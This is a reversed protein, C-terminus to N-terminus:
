CAAAAASRQFVREARKEWDANDCHVCLVVGGNQIYEEHQRVESKPVGPGSVWNLIGSSVGQGMLASVDTNRFGSLRLRDVFEEAHNHNACFGFVTKAQRAM